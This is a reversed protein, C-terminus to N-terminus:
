FYHKHIMGETYLVLISKNDKKELKFKGFSNNQYLINFITDNTILIKM